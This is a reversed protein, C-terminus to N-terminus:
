KAVDRMVDLMTLNVHHDHARLSKPHHSQSQRCTQLSIAERSRHDRIRDPAIVPEIEAQPVNLIKQGSAAHYYAVLRDADPDIPKARLDGRLDTAIPRRGAVFPVEIFHHDGNAALLMPKPPSNIM